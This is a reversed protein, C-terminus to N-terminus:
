KGGIAYADILVWGLFILYLGAFFYVIFAWKTSFWALIDFGAMWFGFILSAGGLLLFAGILLGWKLKPSM